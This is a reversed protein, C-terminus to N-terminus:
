RGTRPRSRGERSKSNLLQHCCTVANQSRCWLSGGKDGHLSGGSGRCASRRITLQKVVLKGLWGDEAIVVTCLSYEARYALM